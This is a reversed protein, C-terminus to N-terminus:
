LYAMQALKRTTFELKRATRDYQLDDILDTQWTLEKEDWVGVKLEDNETTFVYDPLQYSIWVPDTSIQTNPDPYPINRLRDSISFVNRMVWKM